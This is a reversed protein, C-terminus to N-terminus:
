DFRSRSPYNPSFGFDLSGPNVVAVYQLRLLALWPTADHGGVVTHINLVANHLHKVVKAYFVSVESSTSHRPIGVYVTSFGLSYQRTM